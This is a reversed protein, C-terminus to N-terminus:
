KCFEKYSKRVIYIFKLNVIFSVLFVINAITSGSVFISTIFQIILLIVVYFSDRKINTAYDSMIFEYFTNIFKM